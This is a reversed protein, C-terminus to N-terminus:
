LACRVDKELEKNIFGFVGGCGFFEEERNM